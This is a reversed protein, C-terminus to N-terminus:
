GGGIWRWSHRRGWWAAGAAVLTPLAFCLAIVTLDGAVQRNDVDMSHYVGALGGLADLLPPFFAVLVLDATLVTAVGVGFWVAGHSTQLPLRRSLRWIVFATIAALAAAAGYAVWFSVELLGSLADQVSPFLACLILNAVLVTATFLALLVRGRLTRLQLRRAAFGIAVPTLLTMAIALPISADLSPHQGNAMRAILRHVQPVLPLLLLGGVLGVGLALGGLAVSRLLRSPRGFQPAAPDTATPTM